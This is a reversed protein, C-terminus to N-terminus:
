KMYHEPGVKGRTQERFEGGCLDAVFGGDWWEFTTIDEDVVMVHPVGAEVVAVQGRVLPVERYGGDELLVYKARGSVLLTYQRYPHTHNGRYAGRKTELLSYFRGDRSFAYGQGVGEFTGWDDIKLTLRNV